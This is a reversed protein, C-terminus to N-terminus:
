TTEDNLSKSVLETVDVSVGKMEVIRRLQDKMLDRLPRKYRPWKQFASVLRAAVQPNIRDIVLIQSALFEYASGSPHHFATPNQTAFTGLLARIKNPNKPDYLDHSLLSQVRKLTEFNAHRAELSLWKDVVLHNNAYRESFHKLAQERLPSRTENLATLASWKDTM